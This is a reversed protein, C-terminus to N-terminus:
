VLGLPVCDSGAAQLGLHLVGPEKELVKGAQTDGHKRGHYYYVLGSFRYSLGLYINEKIFSVLTM